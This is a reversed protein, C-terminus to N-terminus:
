TMMGSVAEVADQMLAGQNEARRGLDRGGGVYEVGARERSGCVADKQVWRGAWFRGDIQGQDGGPEM